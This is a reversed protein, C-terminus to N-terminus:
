CTTLSNQRSAADCPASKERPSFNIHHWGSPLLTTQQMTQALATISKKSRVGCCHSMAGKPQGSLGLIQGNEQTQVGM